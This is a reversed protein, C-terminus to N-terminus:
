QKPMADEVVCSWVFMAGGGVPLEHYGRGSGRRDSLQEQSPGTLLRREVESGPQRGSKAAEGRRRVGPGPDPLGSAAGPVTSRHSLTQSYCILSRDLIM